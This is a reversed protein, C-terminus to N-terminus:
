NNNNNNNLFKSEVLKYFVISLFITVPTIVFWMILLQLEYKFNFYKLMLLNCLALIPGHILYLSYSIRGLETSIKSSFIKIM